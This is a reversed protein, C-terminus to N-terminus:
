SVVEEREPKLWIWALRGVLTGLWSGILLGAAPCAVGAWRGNPWWHLCVVGGVLCGLVACSISFLGRVRHRPNDPTIKIVKIWGVIGFAVGLFGLYLLYFVEAGSM